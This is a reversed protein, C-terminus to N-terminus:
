AATTDRVDTRRARRPRRAQLRVVTSPEDRNGGARYPSGTATPLIQTEALPRVEFVRVIEAVHADTFLYSGGIWCYPIRRRRAQEKVWWESCRLMAAVDAPRHFVSTAPPPGSM